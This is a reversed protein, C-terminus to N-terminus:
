DWSEIEVQLWRDIDETPRIYEKESEGGVYYNVYYAGGDRTYGFSITGKLATVCGILRMLLEPNASEWDAPASEGRNNRREKRRALKNAVTDTKSKKGSTNNSM